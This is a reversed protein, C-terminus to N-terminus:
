YKNFFKIHTNNKNIPYNYYPLSQKPIEEEPLESTNIKLPTLIFNGFSTGSHLEKRPLNM